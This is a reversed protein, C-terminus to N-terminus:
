RRKSLSWWRDCHSFFEVRVRALGQKARQLAALVRRQDALRLLRQEEVNVEYVRLRIAALDRMLEDFQLQWQTGQLVALRGGRKSEIGERM